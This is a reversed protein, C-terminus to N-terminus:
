SVYKIGDVEAVSLEVSAPPVLLRRYCKRYIDRNETVTETGGGGTYQEWSWEITHIYRDEKPQDKLAQWRGIANARSVPGVMAPLVAHGEILPVPLGSKSLQEE